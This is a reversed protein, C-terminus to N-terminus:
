SMCLIILISYLLVIILELFCVEGLFLFTHFPHNCYNLEMYFFPAFGNLHTFYATATIIKKKADESLMTNLFNKSDIMDILDVTFGKKPTVSIMSPMHHSHLWMRM